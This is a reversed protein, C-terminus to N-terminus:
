KGESNEPAIAVLWYTQMSGRGKIDIWGRPVLIHTTKLCDYTSQSVQIKGPLSHSEMRSAVNVTDGWLDYAFKKLGIVGAVVPGTHIGIRLDIDLGHTQNLSQMAAQMALALNAAAAGHDRRLEPMGAVAMYADGITKIKELGYDEALQDFRSFIQNLLDVLDTPPMTTSLRTFGVLDAFLVSVEAFSDAITRHEMLLRQAVSPPLINLLLRQSRTQEDRLQARAEFEARSLREYLYVILNPLLLIWLLDFWLPKPGVARPMVQLGLLTNVGFYYGYAGLHSLLHLPWHFPIVAAIGLFSLTWGTIDPSVRGEFTQALNTLINISWALGLFASTTHHQPPTQGREPKLWWQWFILSLLALGNSCVRLQVQGMEVSHVLHITTMGLFYLIALVLGLRVRRRMFRSRWQEYPEQEREPPSEWLHAWLQRLRQNAM